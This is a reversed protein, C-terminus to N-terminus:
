ICRKVGIHVKRRNTEVEIYNLPLILRTFYAVKSRNFVLTHKCAKILLVLLM